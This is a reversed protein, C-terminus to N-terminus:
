ERAGLREIEEYRGRKRGGATQRKIERRDRGGNKNDRTTEVVLLLWM